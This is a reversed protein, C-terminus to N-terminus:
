WKESDVEKKINDFDKQAKNDLVKKTKRDVPRGYKDYVEDGLVNIFYAPYKCM